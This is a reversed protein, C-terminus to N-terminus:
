RVAPGSPIRARQQRVMPDSLIGQIEPDAMGHAARERREDDTMGAAGSGKNILGIAKAYGERCLKNGEDIKLGKQYSDM